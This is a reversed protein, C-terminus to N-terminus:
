SFGHELAAPDDVLLRAIEERHFPADGFAVESARARKFYLQLDQEWTFGQGGHIQIGEGTITRYADSCWAKAVCVALHADPAEADLACAAAWTASRAGELQVLMDACKHQIAQFSGIPRGFQERTRAFAVSLELVREAGGVMEACLALRARDLLAPLWAARGSALVRETSVAVEEFHVEAVPRTADLFAMPRVSLGPADTEVLALCPEGSAPQVPVLLQQANAADPVFLRRGSLRLPDGDPHAPLALAPPDWSGEEGLLALSARREGSAIGPLWRARQAEDGALLVALGGLVCSSFFPAPLLVRGMEELLVTLEALGLGAGGHATPLALGTWGLGALTKWIEERAEGADDMAARVRSMPCERELTERATRRLLEQEDSWCLDM